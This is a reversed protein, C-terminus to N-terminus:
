SVLPLSFKNPRVGVALDPTNAVDGGSERGPNAGIVEETLVDGYLTFPSSDKVAVRVTQGVLRETGEFVVIHDTMTRGTLQRV